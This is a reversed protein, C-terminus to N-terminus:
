AAFRRFKLLDHKVKLISIYDATVEAIEDGEDLVAAL